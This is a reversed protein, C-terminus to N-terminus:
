SASLAGEYHELNIGEHLERVLIFDYRGSCGPARRRLWRHAAEILCRQQFRSPLCHQAAAHGKRWKVEVFVVFDGLRFILDIEFNGIKENSAIHSFGLQTMFDRALREGEAGKVQNFTKM